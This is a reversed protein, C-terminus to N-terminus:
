VGAADVRGALLEAAALGQGVGLQVHGLLVFALVASAVRPRNGGTAVALNWWREMGTTVEEHRYGPVGGGGVPDGLPHLRGLDGRRHRDGVVLGLRDRARPGCRRRFLGFADDGSM